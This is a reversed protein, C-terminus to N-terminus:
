NKPLDQRLHTFLMSVSTSLPLTIKHPIPENAPCRTLVAVITETVYLALSKTHLRTAGLMDPSETRSRSLGVSCGVFPSVVYLAYLFTLMTNPLPWNFHSSVYLVVPLIITRYIKIKLNKIAVQFVDSEAGFSVL